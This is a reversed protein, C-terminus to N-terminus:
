IRGQLVEPHMWSAVPDHRAGGVETPKGPLRSVMKAAQIAAGIYVFRPMAFGGDEIRADQLAAVAARKEPKAKWTWGGAALRLLLEYPTQDCLAIDARPEFM